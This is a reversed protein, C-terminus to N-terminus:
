EQMESLSLSLNIKDELIRYWEYFSDSLDRLKNPNGVWYWASSYASPIWHNSFLSLGQRGLLGLLRGTPGDINILLFGYNLLDASNM